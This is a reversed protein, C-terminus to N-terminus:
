PKSPWHEGNSGTEYSPLGPPTDMEADLEDLAASPLELLAEADLDWVAEFAAPESLVRDFTDRGATIVACRAYLFTDSSLPIAPRSTDEGRDRIPRRFLDERDLEFLALHMGTSFETIAKKGARVLVSEAAALVQAAESGLAAGSSDLVSWLRDLGRKRAANSLLQRQSQIGGDPTVGDWPVVGWKRKRAAEDILGKASDILFEVFAEESAHLVRDLDVAFPLILIDGDFVHPRPDRDWGEMSWKEDPRIFPEVWVQALANAECWLHLGRGFREEFQLAAQEQLRRLDDQLHRADAHLMVGMSWTFRLAWESVDVDAPIHRKGSSQM